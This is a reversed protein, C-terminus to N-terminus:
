WTPPSATGIGAFASVLSFWMLIDAALLVASVLFLGRPWRRGTRRLVAGCMVALCAVEVVVSLLIGQMDWTWYALHPGSMYGLTSYAGMVGRLFLFLLLQLHAAALFWAGSRFGTANPRALSFAVIFAVVLAALSLWALMGLPSQCMSWWIPSAYPKPATAWEIPANTM